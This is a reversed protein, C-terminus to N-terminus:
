LGEHNVLLLNHILSGNRTLCPANNIGLCLVVASHVTIDNRVFAQVKGEVVDWDFRMVVRAGNEIM